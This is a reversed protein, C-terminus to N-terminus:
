FRAFKMLIEHRTHFEQVNLSCATFSPSRAMAFLEILRRCCHFHLETVCADIKYPDYTGVRM